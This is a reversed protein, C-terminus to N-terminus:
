GQLRARILGSREGMREIHVPVPLTAVYDELKKGLFDVLGNVIMLFFYFRVIFKLKFTCYFLCVCPKTQKATVFHLACANM